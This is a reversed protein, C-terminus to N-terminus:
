AWEHEIVRGILKSEANEKATIVGAEILRRERGALEAVITRLQEVESGQKVGIDLEVKKVEPPKLHILLSNAADSRVKESAATLMLEAQTNIAKQYLDQNLIWSPIMSQEMINNVLKSKNYVTIISSMEKSTLGKQLMNQYRNPFTVIYADTNSKGMLKQTCYKVANLYDTIKFKGDQLVSMYSIFNDRYTEYLEPDALTNNINDLLEQSVNNRYKDPLSKKLVDLDLSM